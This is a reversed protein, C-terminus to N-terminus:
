EGKYAAEIDAVIIKDMKLMADFVRKSKVPDPGAQLEMLATPIVQWSVGWKDQLWGCRDHHGGEALKDWYYDVEEQDECNIFLSMGQSFEFSPGGNYAYFEQGALQFSMPGTVKSDKFVSAYFKVAEEAGENFMLFTVIKQM